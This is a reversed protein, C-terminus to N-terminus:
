GRKRTRRKLDKERDRLVDEVQCRVFSSLMKLPERSLAGVHEKAGDTDGLDEAARLLLLRAMARESPRQLLEAAALMEEARPKARAAEGRRLEIAAATSQAVALRFKADAQRLEDMAADLAEPSADGDEAYAALATMVRSFPAESGERVKDGIAAMEAAYGGAAGYNERQLELIALNVLAQFENLRDGQRRALDRGQALLVNAAEMEGRHMHLLGLADPIASSEIGIKRALADAERALAEAQSLDRELMVLCRAAEAMAVVHPADGASRSIREAELSLRQADSWDGGEWHLVSMMHFAQRAHEICDHDIALNALRDLERM